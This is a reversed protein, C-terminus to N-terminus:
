SQIAFTIEAECVVKEGVKAIATGVGIAGRQKTLECSLELVDGPKVMGRFKAQKIGGFFALKGRNEEKSLLAVAGVQALAEVILVGPMVHEVPFHGCFFLENVTVCKIGKAWKGEEGDVIKDVLLFPYRHPLIEQIENSNYKMEIDDKGITHYHYM